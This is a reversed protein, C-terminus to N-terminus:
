GSSLKLLEDLADIPYSHQLTELAGWPLGVMTAFRYETEKMQANYYEVLQRYENCKAIIFPLNSATGGEKALLKTCEILQALIISTVLQIEKSCARLKVYRKMTVLAKEFQRKLILCCYFCSIAICILVFKYVFEM